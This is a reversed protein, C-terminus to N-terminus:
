AKLSALVNKQSPFMMSQIYQKPFHCPCGAKPKALPLAYHM